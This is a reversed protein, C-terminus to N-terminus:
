YGKLEGPMFSVIEGKVSSQEKRKGKVSEISCEDGGV